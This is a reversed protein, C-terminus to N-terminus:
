TAYDSKYSAVVVAAANKHTTLSGPLRTRTSEGTRVDTLARSRPGPPDQRAKVISTNKHGKNVGPRFGPGVVTVICSRWNLEGPTLVRISPRM